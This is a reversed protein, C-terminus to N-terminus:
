YKSETRPSQVCYTGDYVHECVMSDLNIDLCALTNSGVFGYCVMQKMHTLFNEPLILM